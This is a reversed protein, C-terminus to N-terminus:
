KVTITGTMTAEEGAVWYKFSGIRNPVLSVRITGNDDYELFDIHRTKIEKGNVVVQFIYSNSFLDPAYFRWEGGGVKTIDVNYGKGTEMEIASTSFKKDPTMDIKVVTAGTTLNGAALASPAGLGAVCAAALISRVFRM